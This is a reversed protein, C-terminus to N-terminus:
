RNPPFVNGWAAALQELSLDAIARAHTQNSVSGSFSPSPARDRSTDIILSMAVWTTAAALAATAMILAIFGRRRMEITTPVTLPLDM